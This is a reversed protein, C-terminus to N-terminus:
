APPALDPAVPSRRCEPAKAFPKRPNASTFFSVEGMHGPAGDPGPARAFVLTIGDTTALRHAAQALAMQPHPAAAVALADLVASKGSNNPGTIITLPRLDTLNGSSIGRFNAIDISQLMPTELPAPPLLCPALDM